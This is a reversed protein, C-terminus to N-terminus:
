LRASSQKLPARLVVEEATRSIRRFKGEKSMTPSFFVAASEPHWLNKSSFRAFNVREYVIKFTQRCRGFMKSIYKITRGIDNLCFKIKRQSYYLEKRKQIKYLSVNSFILFAKRFYGYIYFINM